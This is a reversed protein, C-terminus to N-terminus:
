EHDLSATMRTLPNVFDEYDSLLHALKQQESWGNPFIYAATWVLSNGFGYRRKVFKGFEWEHINKGHPGRGTDGYACLMGNIFACVLEFDAKGVWMEPRGCISQMFKLFEVYFAQANTSLGASMRASGVAIEHM